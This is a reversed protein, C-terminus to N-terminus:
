LLHNLTQSFDTDLAELDHLIQECTRLPRYVYFLRTFPFECGVKDKSRDMWADPAFSLVERKFYEDIDEGYPVKETDNLKPDEVMASQEDMPDLHVAPADEAVQGMQSRLFKVNGATIAVKQEKLFAFFDNDSRRETVSPLALIQEVLAQEKAKMKGENLKGEFWLRLPRRTQVKTYLFTDYDLVKAVSIPETEGKENLLPMTCPEYRKYLDLIQQKGTESIEFRKKGLNKQLLHAFEMHSADVFLVKREREKPRHNDLIWLYTSIDTGYFMSKPLAIIADLLNRDLLMKRIDSWGSGADGNFLPSGNLVIGIRSGNPAMKSIMHQLFLLSGDSTPPLGAEFRGKPCNEQEVITRVHDDKGWDVGFPPNAIMYKFQDGGFCDESLTNGLCISKKQIDLDGKMLLDAKCIAYTKPNLEQGNLQISLKNQGTISLIQEKAITLMGGTGCCPDYISPIAGAACLDKEQGCFLLSVLLKVIDRPTYFQGAQANSSEKAYRVVIEFVTGMQANSVSSPHLDAKVFEQVVSFLKNNNDLYSYIDSLNPDGQSPKRVFSALIDKVEPTFGDLYAKFHSGIQEPAGCLKALSLGSFNFFSLKHQKLLVPLLSPKVAAPANKYKELIDNRTAEPVSELECDLRRLLMFPLIVDEVEDDDYLNRIIEKINWIVNALEQETM